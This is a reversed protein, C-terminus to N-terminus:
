VEDILQSAAKGVISRVERDQLIIHCSGTEDRAECFIEFRCYKLQMLNYPDLNFM